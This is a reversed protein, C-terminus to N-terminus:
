YDPDWCVVIVGRELDVRKVVDGRVYPVLLENHRPAGVVLLDHAGTELLHTVEGLTTGQENLVQLGILDHWYYEGNELPPLEERAVGVLAGSWAAASERSSIGAFKVVMGKGHRRGREVDLREQRGARDLRLRAYDLLGEPRESNAAQVRLWGRVGYPAGIRGLIVM